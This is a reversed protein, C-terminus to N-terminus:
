SWQLEPLAARIGEAAAPRQEILRAIAALAAHREPRRVSRLAVALLPLLRDAEEPRMALRRAAQSVAGHKARGGRTTNLLISAWLLRLREPSLQRDLDLPGDARAVTAELLNLLPIRVDDYPSEMLKQWLGVDDRAQVEHEFWDMGERRADAHRSDLFELLHEPRYEGALLTARLWALIEPRLPRCEADLLIPTVGRRDEDTLEGRRELWRLGLRAIPLPRSAALRATADLSLREPLLHKEMLAALPEVATPGAKRALNLWRAPEVFSLDVALTLLEAAWAVVQEDDHDLLRMVDDMGVRLASTPDRSLMSMAWRRVPRSAARRLLEFLAPQADKWLEPFMPAPELEALSRGEATLWGRRGAVLAPSHHFIAHILGWNDLLALGTEVDEDKYLVLAESIAAVYREPHAKGLKRFYRWSRRQLYRRTPVSFLRLRELAPRASVPPSTADKYQMPDLALVGVWDPADVKRVRFPNNDYGAAYSVLKGRPMTTGGPVTVYVRSLWGRVLTSGNRQEYIQVYEYQHSTWSAALKRAQDLDAVSKEALHHRKRRVRRLSRDFAALFRAMTADDGAAEALKFLRKVLAEHRYANLPRELYELLLRRATPSPNAYWRDAFARLGDADDIARLREVFEPSGQELLERVLLWDGGAM